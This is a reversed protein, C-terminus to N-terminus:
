SSPDQSSTSTQGGTCGHMQRFDTNDLVQGDHKETKKKRKM